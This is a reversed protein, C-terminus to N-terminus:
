TNNPLRENLKLHTLIEFKDQVLGDKYDGIKYNASVIGEPLILAKMEYYPSNIEINRESDVSYINLYNTPKSNLAIIIEELSKTPKASISNFFGNKFFKFYRRQIHNYSFGAHWEVIISAQSVYLENFILLENPVSIEVDWYSMFMSEFENQLKKLDRLYQANFEAKSQWTEYREICERNLMLQERVSDLVDTFNQNALKKSEDTHELINIEHETM